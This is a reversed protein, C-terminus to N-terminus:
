LEGDSFVSKLVIRMMNKMLKGVKGDVSDWEILRWWFYQLYWGMHWASGILNIILSHASWLVKHTLCVVWYFLQTKLLREREFNSLVTLVVRDEICLISFETCFPLYEKMKLVRITSVAGVVIEVGFIREEVETLKWKVIEGNSTCLNM